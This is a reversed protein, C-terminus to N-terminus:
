PSSVADANVIVRQRSQVAQVIGEAVRLAAVADGASVEPTAYGTVCALFHEIERSFAQPWRTTDLATTSTADTMTTAPLPGSSLLGLTGRWEMSARVWAPYGGPLLWGAEVSGTAGNELELIAVIHLLPNGPLERSTVGSAQVAQITSGAIWQVLDLDHIMLDYVLWYTGSGYRWSEAPPAATLRSASFALLRGLDGVHDHLVRYTGNFREVHGCFLVCGRKDALEVLRRAESSAAALPKEVFVHLGADLALTALEFHTSPPTCIDVSHVPEKQLAEDLSRYLVDGDEVTVRPDNDVVVLRDVRKAKRYLAAHYTGIGGYGVLCIVVPRPTV